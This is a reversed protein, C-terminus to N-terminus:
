RAVPQGALVPVVVRSSPGHGGNISPWGGAFTMPDLLLSRAFVPAGARVAHYLVYWHGAADQTFTAHGPCRWRRNGALIPNRPDEAWPGMLSRSRAVGLAYTCKLSCCGGGSYFLYFWGARRVVEPGEVIGRDWPRSNALLLRKPGMLRLGDATLRRAWIRTPKRASNGDEKWVLWRRGEEDVTPDPDISGLPQCTLPGADAYPGAVRDAVAVAVCLRGDKRRTSYYVVFREGVQELAPAWFTDARAWRPPAALVNGAPRWHVLDASTLLPMGRSSTATTAAWWADGSRLVTPDPWDGRLVPNPAPVAPRAVPTNIVGALPVATAAVVIAAVLLSRLRV